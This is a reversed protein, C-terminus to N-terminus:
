SPSTRTVTVYPPNNAVDAAKTLVCDISSLPTVSTAVYSGSYITSAVIVALSVSTGDCSVEPTQYFNEDSAVTVTVTSGVAVTTSGSIDM